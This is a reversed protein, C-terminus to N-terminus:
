PMAGEGSQEDLMAELEALAELDKADESPDAAAYTKEARAWDAEVTIELGELLCLMQEDPMMPLDPNVHRAQRYVRLKREFRERLLRRTEIPVHKFSDFRSPHNSRRTTM